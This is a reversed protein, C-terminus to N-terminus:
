YPTKHCVNGNQLLGMVKVATNMVMEFMVNLDIKRDYKQLHCLVPISLPGPDPCWSHDVM